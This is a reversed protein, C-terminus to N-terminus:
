KGRRRYGRAMYGYFLWDFFRDNLLEGQRFNALKRLLSLSVGSRFPSLLFSIIKKRLGNGSDPLGLLWGKDFIVDVPYKNLLRPYGNSGFNEYQEIIQSMGKNDYHYCFADPINHIPIDAKQLRLGFDTDEGGWGEFSTDFGSLRKYLDRRISFNGSTFYKGPLGIGRQLSLRGRTIFYRQYPKLSRGQPNRYGGLFVGDPFESWAESYKDVFDPGPVMDGDISIILDGAAKQFGQNRNRARGLNSDARIYKLFIPYRLKKIMNDTGDNSCDDAIIIEYTQPNKIQGKLVDLAKLVTDRQNFACILISYNIM